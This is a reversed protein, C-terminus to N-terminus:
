KKKGADMQRRIWSRDISTTFKFIQSINTYQQSHPYRPDRPFSPAAEGFIFLHKKFDGSTASTVNRIIVLLERDTGDSVYSPNDPQPVINVQPIVKVIASGVFQPVSPTIPISSVQKLGEHLQESIGFEGIGSFSTLTEGSLIAKYNESHWKELVTQVIDAERMANSVEGNTPFVFNEPGIGTVFRGLMLNVFNKTTIEENAYFRSFDNTERSNKAAVQPVSLEEKSKFKDWSKPDKFDFGTAFGGSSLFAQNIAEKHYNLFLRQYSEGSPSTPNTGYSPAAMLQKIAVQQSSPNWKYDKPTDGSVNSPEVYSTPASALLEDMRALTEPGVVGDARLRHDRQFSLVAAKTEAGFKLDIGFRPLPYGLIVLARQIRGVFDGASGAGISAFKADLAQIPAKFSVPNRLDPDQKPLELMKLVAQNGM